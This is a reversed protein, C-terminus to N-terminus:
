LISSHLDQMAYASPWTCELVADLVPDSKPTAALADLIDDLTSMTFRHEAPDKDETTM